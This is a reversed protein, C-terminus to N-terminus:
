TRHHNFFWVTYRILNLKSFLGARQVEDDNIVGKARLFIGIDFPFFPMSLALSLSLSFILLSFFGQALM